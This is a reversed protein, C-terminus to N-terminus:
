TPTSEAGGDYGPITEVQLEKTTSSTEKHAFFSVTTFTPQKARAKLKLNPQKTTTSPSSTQM